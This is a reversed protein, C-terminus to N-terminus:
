NGRRHELIYRDTEIALAQIAGKIHRCTHSPSFKYGECSCILEVSDPFQSYVKHWYSPNSKSSVLVFIPHSQYIVIALDGEKTKHTQVDKDLQFMM